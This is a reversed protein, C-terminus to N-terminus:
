TLNPLKSWKQLVFYTMTELDQWLVLTVLNPSQKSQSPQKFIAVNARIKKGRYIYLTQDWISTLPWQMHLSIGTM